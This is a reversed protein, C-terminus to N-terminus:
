VAAFPSICIGCMWILGCASFAMPEQIPSIYTLFHLTIFLLPGEMSKVYNRLVHPLFVFKNSHSSGPLIIPGVSNGGSSLCPSDWQLLSQGHFYRRCGIVVFYRYPNQELGKPKKNRIGWPPPSTNGSQRTFFISPDQAGRSHACELGVTNPLVSWLPQTDRWDSGCSRQWLPLKEEWM